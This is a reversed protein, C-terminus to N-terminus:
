IGRRGDISARDAMAKQVATMREDEPMDMLTALAAQMVIGNQYGKSALEDLFDCQYRSVYFHKDTKKPRDSSM